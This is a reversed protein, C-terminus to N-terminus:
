QGGREAALRAREREIMADETLGMKEAWEKLDRGVDKNNQNRYMFALAHDYVRQLRKPGWKWPPLSFVKLVFWLIVHFAAEDRRDQERKEKRQKALSKM